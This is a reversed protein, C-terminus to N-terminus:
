QKEVLGSEYGYACTDVPSVNYTVPDAFFKVYYRLGLNETYAM